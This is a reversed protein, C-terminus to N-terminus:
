KAADGARPKAHAAPAAAADTKPPAVLLDAFVIRDSDGKYGPLNKAPDNVIAGLLLVPSGQEVNPKQSTVITLATGGPLELQSEILKGRPEIAKLKGAAFLGSEKRWPSNIWMAALNGISALEEPAVATNLASIRSAVRIKWDAQENDSGAPVKAFTLVTAFHSMARYHAVRARKLEDGDGAKTAAALAASSGNAVEIAANLDDLSYAVDSKPSVTEAANEIPKEVQREVPQEAVNDAPTKGVDPGLKVPPLDLSPPKNSDGLLDGKRSNEKSSSSDTPKAPVEPPNPAADAKGHSQAAADLKSPSQAADEAATKAPGKTAADASEAAPNDAAAPKEATASDATPRSKQEDAATNNSLSPVADPGSDNPGQSLLPKADRPRSNSPRVKPERLSKAVVWDPFYKQVGFLDSIGFYLFASYVLLCGLAGFGFFIGIGILRVALPTKKKQRPLKAAAAAMGGVAHSGNGGIRDPSDAAEDFDGAAVSHEDAFRFEDHENHEGSGAVEHVHEIGQEALEHGSAFPLGNDHEGAPVDRPPSDKDHDGAVNMEDAAFPAAGAPLGTTVDEVAAEEVEGLAPPPVVELMPPVFDIATQLTYQASCLPCRVWVSPDGAGPLSVQRFCRPCTAAASM